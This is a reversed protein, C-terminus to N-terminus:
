EGGSGESQSSKYLERAQINFVFVEVIFSIIVQLVILSIIFFSM